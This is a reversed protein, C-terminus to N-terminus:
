MEKLHRHIKYAEKESILEIGDESLKWIIVKHPNESRLKELEDQSYTYLLKGEKYVSIEEYQSGKVREWYLGAPKLKGKFEVDGSVIGKVEITTQFSNIIGPEHIPDYCGVILFLFITSISLLINRM